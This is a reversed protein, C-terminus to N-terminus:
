HCITNHKSSMNNCANCPWSSLSAAVKWGLLFVRFGSLLMEKADRIAALSPIYGLGQIFIWLSYIETATEWSVLKWELYVFVVVISYWPCYSSITKWQSLPPALIIQSFLKHKPCIYNKTSLLYQCNTTIIESNNADM